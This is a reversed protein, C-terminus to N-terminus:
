VGPFPASPNNLGSGIVTASRPLTTMVFRPGAGTINLRVEDGIAITRGIWGNEVIGDEGSAPEVVINPRFRRVEFRGQPCLEQLQEFTATTLIHIVALDFFTDAPMNEDTVTDRHDLGKMDPWYEELSPTEPATAALRVERGLVESLIQNCDAQKSTVITGDPLTILVPPIMEDPPLPEVFAARWDFLKGWKRPNKASAVKGNSPDM